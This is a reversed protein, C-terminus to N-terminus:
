NWHYVVMARGKQTIVGERRTRGEHAGWAIKRPAVTPAPPKPESRM